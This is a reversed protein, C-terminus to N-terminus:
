RPAFIAGASEQPLRECLCEGVGRLSDRFDCVIDDFDIARHPPAETPLQPRKFNPVRDADLLGPNSWPDEKLMQRYKEIAKETNADQAHAILAGSVLAGFAAAFLIHATRM